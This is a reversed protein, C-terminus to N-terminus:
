KRCGSAGAGTSGSCSSEGFISLELICFESRGVESRDTNLKIGNELLYEMKVELGRCRSLQTMKSREDKLM